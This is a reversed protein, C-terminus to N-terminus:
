RRPIAIRVEAGGDPRNSAGITGGHREIISRAVALGLGTGRVRTTHFPEFIRGEEGAPLGVGRDRVRFVLRSEEEAVAAEVRDEATSAQLANRLVNVLVQRIRPPDLTWRQPAGDTRVDIRGGGAEEAAERLLAAPDCATAKLEGSRVFDLLDSTLNELRVAERVVREVKARDGGEAPLSELLLQAHGKLSALPNRIEHALVASMEGLAALRRERELRRELSERQRWARALLLAFAVFVVAAASGLVLTLRADGALRQAELPEFDLVLWPAEPGPGPFPPPGGALPGGPSFPPPFAGPPPPRPPAPPLFAPRPPPPPAVFRVREGLEVLEGPRPLPPGLPAAGPDGADVLIRGDAFALAVYRLGDARNDELFAALADASPPGSGDFLSRQAAEFFVNGQGRVLTGGARRIGLWGVILSALLAVATGCAM